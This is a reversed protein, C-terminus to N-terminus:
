GALDVPVAIRQGPQVSSSTLQNLNIIEAIVERPDSAPAITEAISWLSQGGTVTVYEFSAGSSDAGAIAAGGGLLAVSALAATIPLAILAAVVRRGRPTIRLRTGATPRAAIRPASIRPSSMRPATISM